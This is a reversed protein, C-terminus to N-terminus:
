IAAREARVVIRSGGGWRKAGAFLMLGPATGTPRLDLRDAPVTDVSRVVFVRTGTLTQVEIRDGPAIRDIGSLFAGFGLRNGTLVATGDEGPLPTGALHAPGRRTQAPGAGEVVIADLGISGIRLRVVPDGAAFEWRAAAAPTMRAAEARARDWQTRLARQALSASVNTGIYGAIALVPLAAALWRLRPRRLARGAPRRLALPAVTM